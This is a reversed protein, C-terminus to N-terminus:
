VGCSKFGWARLRVSRFVEKLESCHEQAASYVWPAINRTSIKVGVFVCLSISSKIVGTYIRIWLPRIFTEKPPLPGGVMLEWLQRSRKGM